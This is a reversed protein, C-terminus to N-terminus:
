SAAAAVEYGEMRLLEATAALFIPEDDALLLRIPAASTM